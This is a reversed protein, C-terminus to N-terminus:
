SCYSQAGDTYLMQKKCSFRGGPSRDLHPVDVLLFNRAGAKVYFAHVIDFLAELVDELEDASTSRVHAISNTIYDSACLGDYLLSM